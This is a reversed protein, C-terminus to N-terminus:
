KSVVKYVAGNWDLIYMEGQADEGFSSIWTGTKLFSRSEWGGPGNVLSWTNGTCFDGFIYIGQLSPLQQGRYVYGGTISCNGDTHPYEAIPASFVEQATGKFDHHSEVVSWGFNQGGMGGAPLYDVEEYADQGVDAIYLDGNLRDFSFRWPNRLGYAWIEPMANDKGTFPNDAPIGYTDGTNVNIRLIKGLLTSLNQARDQPDGRSGGDGMGIYLYGDPGFVVDGGNHNSYPQAIHLIIIGTSPDALNPDASVRFRRIATDGHTDTYNVYFLGNRAYDPHFALGLL